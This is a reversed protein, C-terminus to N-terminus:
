AMEHLEDCKGPLSVGSFSPQAKTGLGGVRYPRADKAKEKDGPDLAKAITDEGVEADPLLERFGHPPDHGFGGEVSSLPPLGGSQRLSCSLRLQSGWNTGHTRRM